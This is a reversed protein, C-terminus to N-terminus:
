RAERRHNSLNLDNEYKKREDNIAEAIALPFDDTVAQRERWKSAVAHLPNNMRLLWETEVPTFRHTDMLYQYADKVACIFSADAILYDNSATRWELKYEEMRKDVADILMQLRAKERNQKAAALQARVSPKDAEIPEIGSATLMKNLEELTNVQAYGDAVIFKIFEEVTEGPHDIGGYPSSDDELVRNLVARIEPSYDKDPAKMTSLQERISPRCQMESLYDELLDRVHPINAEMEALLGTVNKDQRIIEGLNRLNARHIQETTQYNASIFANDAHSRNDDNYNLYLDYWIGVEQEYSLM